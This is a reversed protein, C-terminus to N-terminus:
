EAHEPISEARYAFEREGNDFLDLYYKLTEYYMNM